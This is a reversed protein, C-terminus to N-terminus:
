AAGGAGPTVGPSTARAAEAARRGASEDFLRELRGEGPVAEVVPLGAGILERLLAAAAEDSPVLYVLENGNRREFRSGPPLPVRLAREVAEEPAGSMVRIHLDRVHTAGVDITEMAEVRGGKVFVVRTCVKEVQALQHSNLLVTTGRRSAEDILRRFLVVGSPDMGSTPEDLFLYRPEGLLAQALGIRQLMGRSYRGVSRRAAEGALGVQELARSVDATRTAASLGALGHHYALFDAGSMWRDMVLREPLYGTVRRVARDDPPLGDLRIRGADPFLFGLLCGILTTKGAGNPGIIGCVEGPAVTLSVDALAPTLAGRYTKTLHEVQIGNM